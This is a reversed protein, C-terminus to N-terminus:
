LIEKQLLYEDMYGHLTIMDLKDHTFISEMITFIPLTLKM